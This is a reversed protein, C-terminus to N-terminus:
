VYEKERYFRCFPKNFVGYPQPSEITFGLARLWKLNSKNEALAYNFLVDVEDLMEEIALRPYHLLERKYHITEKTGLMWIVASKSLLSQKGYGMIAIPKNDHCASFAETEMISHLLAEYPSHDHSLRVELVDEDRMNSAVTEIDSLTPKRFVIDKM